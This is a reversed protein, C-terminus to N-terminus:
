GAGGFPATSPMGGILPPEPGGPASAAAKAAANEQATKFRKSAPDEDLAAQAKHKMRTLTELMAELGEGLAGASSPQDLEMDSFENDEATKNELQSEWDGPEAHVGARAEGDPFQSDGEQAGGRQSTRARQLRQGM